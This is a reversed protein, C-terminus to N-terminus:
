YWLTHTELVTLHGFLRVARASCKLGGGILGGREVGVVGWWWWNCGRAVTVGCSGM